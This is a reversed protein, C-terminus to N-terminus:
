PHLGWGGTSHRLRAVPQANLCNLYTKTRHCSLLRCEGPSFALDHVHNIAKASRRRPLDPVLELVRRMWGGDTREEADELGLSLEPVALVPRSM